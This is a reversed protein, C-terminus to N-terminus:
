GVAALLAVLGIALAAAVLAAALRTRAVPDLGPRLPEVAGHIHRRLTADQPPAPWRWDIM